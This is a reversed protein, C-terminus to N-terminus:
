TNENRDSPIHSSHFCINVGASWSGFRSHIEKECQSHTPDLASRFVLLGLLIREIGISLLAIFLVTVIVDASLTPFGLM